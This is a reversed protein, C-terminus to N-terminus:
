HPATAVAPNSWAGKEEGRFARARIWYKKGPTLNSFTFKSTKGSAGANTWSELSDASIQYEYGSASKVRDFNIDIEGPEDGTAASLNSVQDVPESNGKDSAVPFGTTLLIATDAAKSNIEDVISSDLRELTDKASDRDLLAQKLKDRASSVTGVKESFATSATNYETLKAETVTVKCEGGTLVKYRNATENIVEEDSKSKLDSKVRAM